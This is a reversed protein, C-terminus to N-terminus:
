LVEFLLLLAATSVACFSRTAGESLDNEEVHKSKESVLVRDKQSM